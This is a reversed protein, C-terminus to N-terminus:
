QTSISFYLKEASDVPQLAVNFYTSDGVSRSQDVLFDSDYDVNKIAGADAYNQLLSKGLGEMISWGEEDNDYANPPFTTQLDSAFSDFVRIVRNKKYSDDQDSDPNILSNIDYEVVVNGEDDSSFVLKGAKIAEIIGENTLEGVVATADDVVKYTISETKDAGATAGAVWATAQAVTLDAGDFTFANGVSIVGIDDAAYNPLVFQVPKGVKTRLYKVKSAASALLSSETVPIAATNFSLKEIKDLFTSFDNNTTTSAAGGTLTLGSFSTLAGKGSYKVYSSGAAILEEVTSVGETVEMLDEGLYLSVDYGTDTNEVSVIRIDNGRAGEYVATATLNGQTGKAATGGSIIYAYVTASNYLALRILKVLDNEDYVSRGLKVLEADPADPTLEIFTGNPGWDYGVLPVVCVGRTANTPAYSKKARFNIYTGPRVKATNIDFNGSAM